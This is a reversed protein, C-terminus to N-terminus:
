LPLLCLLLALPLPLLFVSYGAVLALLFELALSVSVVFGAVVAPESVFLPHAAVAVAWVAFAAVWVV